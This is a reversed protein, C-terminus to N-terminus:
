KAVSILEKRNWAENIINGLKEGSVSVYIQRTAVKIPPTLKKIEAFISNISFLAIFTLGSMVTIVCIMCGKRGYALRRGMRKVSRMTGYRM